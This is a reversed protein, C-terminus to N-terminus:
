RRPLPVPLGRRAGAGRHDGSRRRLECSRRHRSPASTGVARPHDCRCRQQHVGPAEGRDISIRAPVRLRQERDHRELVVQTATPVGADRLLCRSASKHGVLKRADGPRRAPLLPGFTRMTRDGARLELFGDPCNPVSDAGIGAACQKWLTVYYDHRDVPREENRITRRARRPRPVRRSLDRVQDIKGAVIRERALTPLRPARGRSARDWVTRLCWLTRCGQARGDIALGNGRSGVSVVVYRQVRDQSATPRSPLARGHLDDTGPDVEDVVPAPCWQVRHQDLEHSVVAEDSHAFSRIAYPRPPVAVAPM